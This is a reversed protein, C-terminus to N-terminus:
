TQAGTDVSSGAVGSPAAMWMSSRLGSSTRLTRPTAIAGSPVAANLGAKSTVGASSMVPMTVSSPTRRAGYSTAIAPATSALWARHAASGRIPSRIRAARPSPSTAGLGPAAVTPEGSARGVMPSRSSWAPHRRDGDLSAAIARRRARSRPGRGGGPTGRARGGTRPTRSRRGRPGRTRACGSPHRAEPSSGTAMPRSYPPSVGCGSNRIPRGSPM